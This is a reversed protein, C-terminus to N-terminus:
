TIIPPRKWLLVHDFVYLLLLLLQLLELLMLMQAQSGHLPTAHRAQNDTLRWALCGVTQRRAITSADYRM